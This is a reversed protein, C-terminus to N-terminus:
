QKPLEGMRDDASILRATPNFSDRQILVKALSWIYSRDPGKENLCSIFSSFVGQILTLVLM